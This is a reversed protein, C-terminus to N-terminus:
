KVLAEVVKLWRPVMERADDVLGAAVLAQDYVTRALLKATEEDKGGKKRLEDMKAVLAHAPNIEMQQRGVDFRRAPGGGQQDVLRMMRRVSVSEHDTVLAPADSIRRTATVSSVLDGLASEMWKCLEASQALADTNATTEDASLLEQEVDKSDAAVLARGEYKQLSGMCFDDILHYLFLVEVNRKKFVEYYPSAEALARSPASLYYLKKRGPECRSIVEDLSALADGPKLASTDFRVLKALEGMNAADSCLGEKVYQGHSTWFASYAAPDDKAKDRLFKLLKKTVVDGIRKVTRSSTASERSISLPLDESDVVGKVFRAWGPMLKESQADVLVRRAHLSVGPQVRRATLNEENHKGVFLLAKIDLPVDTRFHMTFQPPEFDNYTKKYFDAYRDPTISAPDAAWIADSTNVREGNVSVPFAVYNSYKKIVDKIRAADVYEHADDRLELEIKTGVFDKDVGTAPELSFSDKGESKWTFAASEGGKSAAPRSTVTVSKAVMFVSYFGVGFQGIIDANSKGLESSGSKGITGLNAMLEDSTMGVGNDTITLAKNVPNLDINISRVVDYDPAHKQLADSANSILERLFVDRDSYLSRSVLDLLKSTDAQFAHTTTTTTTTTTSQFRLRSPTVAVALLPLASGGGRCTVRLASLAGSRRAAALM